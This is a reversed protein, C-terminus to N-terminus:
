HFFPLSKMLNGIIFFQGPDEEAVAFTGEEAPVNRKPIRTMAFKLSNPYARVGESQLGRLRRLSDM